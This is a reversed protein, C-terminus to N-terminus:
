MVAGFAPLYGGIWELMRSGGGIGMGGVMDSLVWFVVITPGCGRQMAVDCARSDMTCPWGWELLDKGKREEKKSGM